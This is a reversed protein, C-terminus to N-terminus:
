SRQQTQTVDGLCGECEDRGRKLEERERQSKFTLPYQFVENRQFGFQRNLRRGEVGDRMKKNESDKKGKKRKM